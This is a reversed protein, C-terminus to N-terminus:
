NQIFLKLKEDWDKKFPENFTPAGSPPPIWRMSTIMIKRFFFIRRGRIEM